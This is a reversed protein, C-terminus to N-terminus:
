AADVARAGKRKRKASEAGVLPAETRPLRITFTSGRDPQSWLRVEGGHRNVAHKVISLGLGTGGTRRSRAQDARYFREFVRQQDAEAIGIGQDTVAIEVAEATGRVGIGVRSGRPSYAIANAVLNGLAEVLITASGRVFLGRDGGRVLAVDASEAQVQYQELAAAVVEDIAVDGVETLEDAAQLKSLNMIRGTLQGLRQAEASMRAAFRRVQEPDDSASEMAEALLGIAGVPTKLEHSTNAIFDQRMQQLREQESIDRVILLTLRDAIATARAVVLRTDDSIRGRRIRLTQSETSSGLGRAAKVLERLEPQELGQGPTLGLWTASASVSVVAGSSDIVATADDIADLAATLAPPLALSQERLARERARFALVVILTVGVGLIIGAALALLALQTSDM